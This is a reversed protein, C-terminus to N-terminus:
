SGAPERPTLPNGEHGTGGYDVDAIREDRTKRASMTWLRALVAGTLLHVVPVYPVRHRDEFYFLILPINVAALFMWVLGARRRCVLVAAVVIAAYILPEPRRGAGWLGWLKVFWLRVVHGPNERVFDSHIRQLTPNLKPYADYPWPDGRRLPNNTYDFVVTRLQRLHRKVQAPSLDEVGEYYPELPWDPPIDLGVLLVTPGSTPMWLARGVLQFNRVAMATWLLAFVLGLVALNGCRMAIAKAGDSRVSFVLWAASAPVLLALNPRMLFSLGLLLGALAFRLPNASRRCALTAALSAIVLLAAPQEAFFRPTFKALNHDIACAVCALLAARVGFLRRAVGFVLPIMAATLLAQFLAMLGPREDFLGLLGALWYDMLPNRHFQELSNERSAPEDDYFRTPGLRGDLARAWIRLWRDLAANDSFIADDISPTTPAALTPAPRAGPIGLIEWAGLSARPVRATGPLPEGAHRLVLARNLYVKPDDPELTCWQADRASRRVVEVAGHAFTVVACVFVMGRIMTRRRRCGRWDVSGWLVCMVAAAALALSVGACARVQSRRVARKDGAIVPHLWASPIVFQSGDARVGLLQFECGVQSRPTEVPYEPRLYRIRIPTPGGVHAFAYHEISWAGDSIASLAVVDEPVDISGTWEVRFAAFDLVERAPEGVKDGPPPKTRGGWPLYNFFQLHFSDGFLSFGNNSFDLREDIRRWPRTHDAIRADGAARGALSEYVGTLGVPPEMRGAAFKLGAAVAFLAIAWATWRRGPCVPLDTGGRHTDSRRHPLVFFTLAWLPLFLFLGLDTFPVGPLPM